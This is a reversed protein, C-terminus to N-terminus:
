QIEGNKDTKLLMVVQLSALTTTALVVLSGDRTQRIATGVDNTKGGYRQRWIETGFADIKIMQLDFGRGTANGLDPSNSDYSGLLVIGGDRTATVAYGTENYIDSQPSEGPSAPPRVIIKRGNLPRSGDENLRQFFIDETGNENTTGIIGYGSTFPTIDAATENNGPNGVPIDFIVSPSNQATKIMRIDKFSSRAVTGTWIAQQGANLLLRPAITTAGETGDGYQRLWTRQFNSLNYSALFMKQNLENVSRHVGLVLLTNDTEALGVGKRGPLGLLSDLREQKGNEGARLVFPHSRGNVLWEGTIWCGGTKALILTQGVLQAKAADFFSNGPEPYIQTWLMNGDADTKYLKIKNSFSDGERAEINSLIIFGDDPTQEFAIATENFGGSFYRLFTGPKGIAADEEKFCASLLLLLVVPFLFRM